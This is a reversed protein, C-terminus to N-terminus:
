GKITNDYLELIEKFRSYRFDPLVSKILSDDLQLNQMGVDARDAKGFLDDTVSFGYFSYIEQIIGRISYTEIGSLNYIGNKQLSVLEFIIKAIDGAYLYQRIQTGSTFQLKKNKKLSSVTYPILRHASESEGYITPLILHLHRFNQSKSCVYKNLLRKSICYDNPVDLTSNIVEIENFRKEALNNGIEFCSGFTVFTGKYGDRILDNSIKIPTFTNLNYIADYGEKLNSQVGAGCAYIIVDSNLIKQVDINESMLDIKIFENFKHTDPERRGFSILEFNNRDCALGIESALLGNTGIVSIKM